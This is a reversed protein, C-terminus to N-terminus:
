QKRTGSLRRWAWYCIAIGGTLGALNLSWAALQVSLSTRLYGQAELTPGIWMVFPLVLMWTFVQAVLPLALVAALGTIWPRRRVAPLSTM